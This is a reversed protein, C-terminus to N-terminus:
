GRLEERKRGGVNGKGEERREYRAEKKKCEQL